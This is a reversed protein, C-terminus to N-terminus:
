APFRAFLGSSCGPGKVMRLSCKWGQLRAKNLKKSEDLAVLRRTEKGDM